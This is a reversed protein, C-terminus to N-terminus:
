AASAVAGNTLERYTLRKGTVARLAATFRDADSGERENFRFVQEDVYRGLHFPEVSIYTGKISRKLLSWFNEVSNTHIHGNVYEVTHDIVAHAFDSLGRYSHMADTYLTTGPKVTSRIHGQLTDRGVDPVVNARVRSPNEGRSRQLIGFVATKGVPGSGTIALKRRGRHMNKALGGVFTEDAEVAGDMKEITGLRMALRIRHNMHWASKQTIGLARALEYSSIGNKCNAIQWIAVFWKDLPIASDEFITGVKASFQKRPHKEKCEWLRRTAIFRVDARGCTPCSIGGPWRLDVMHKLAVDPDAFYRVAEILTRPEQAM